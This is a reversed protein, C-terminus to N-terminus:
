FKIFGNGSAKTLCSKEIEKIRSNIISIDKERKEIIKKSKSDMISSRMSEIHNEKYYIVHQGSQMTNLTEPNIEFQIFRRNKLAKGSYAYHQLAFMFIKKSPKLRKYYKAQSIRGDEYSYEIQGEHIRRDDKYTYFHISSVLDGSYKYRVEKSRKSEMGSLDKYVIKAPKKCDGEYYLKKACKGNSSNNYTVQILRGSEDYQKKEASAAQISSASVFFLVIVLFKLIYRNM